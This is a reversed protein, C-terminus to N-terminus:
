EPSIISTSPSEDFPKGLRCITPIPFLAISSAFSRTRLAIFFESRSKGFCFIVMMDHELATNVKSAILADTEHFYARRESHGLIVTNVGISTLMNAAVEGTFAGGESQHMNQAAIKITTGEVLEVAKALYPFPTALIIEANNNPKGTKIENILTIAQSYDKNMKWNGAIINKRM